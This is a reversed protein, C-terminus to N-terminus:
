HGFVNGEQISCSVSGIQISSVEVRGRGGMQLVINKGSQRGDMSLPPKAGQAPATWILPSGVRAVRCNETSSLRADKSISAIKRTPNARASFSPAGRGFRSGGGMVRVFPRGSSSVYINMLRTVLFNQETQDGGNRGTVSESWQVSISKGYLEKPASGAQAAASLLTLAYGFFIALKGERM